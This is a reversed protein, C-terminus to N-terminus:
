HLHECVEMVGDIVTHTHTDAFTVSLFLSIKKEKLFLSLCNLKVRLEDRTEDCHPPFLSLLTLRLKRAKKMKLTTIVLFSLSELHINHNESPGGTSLACPCVM